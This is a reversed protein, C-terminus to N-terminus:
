VRFGLSFGVGLLFSLCSGHQGPVLNGVDTAVMEKTKIDMGPLFRM